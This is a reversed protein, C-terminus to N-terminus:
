VIEKTTRDEWMFGNWTVERRDEQFAKLVIITGPKSCQLWSDNIAAAPTEGNGGCSRLMSGEKIEIYKMLCYWDGPKRMMICIDPNLAKLAFFQEEYTVIM